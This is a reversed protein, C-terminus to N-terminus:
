STMTPFFLFRLHHVVASQSPNILLDLHTHLRFTLQVVHELSLQKLHSLGHCSPGQSNLPSSGVIALYRSTASHGLQLAGIVLFPAQLWIVQERHLVPKQQIQRASKFSWLVCSHRGYVILKVSPQSKKSPSVAKYHSRQLRKVKMKLGNWM